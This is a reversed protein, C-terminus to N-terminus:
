EVGARVDGVEFERVCAGNEIEGDDCGDFDGDQEHIAADEGNIFVKSELRQEDADEDKGEPEDGAEGSDQIADWDFVVPDADRPWFM